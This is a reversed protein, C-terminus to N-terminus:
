FRGGAMVGVTRPALMPALANVTIPVTHKTVVGLVIMAVGSTQVVADMVLLATAFGGLVSRDGGLSPIALLPGIGPVGLPGYESNIATLVLNPIWSVTFVTAGAAFLGWRRRTEYREVRPRWITGSPKKPAEEPVVPVMTPPPLQPREADDMQEVPANASATLAKLCILVAIALRM